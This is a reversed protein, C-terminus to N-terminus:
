IWADAQLIKIRANLQEQFTQSLPPPATRNHTARPFTESPTSKPLIFFIFIDFTEFWKMNTKM